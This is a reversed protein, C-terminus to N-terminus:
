KIRVRGTDVCLLFAAAKAAAAMADSESPTLFSIDRSRKRSAITFPDGMLRDVDDQFIDERRDGRSMVHYKAGPFEIRVKGPMCRCPFCFLLDVELLVPSVYPNVGIGVLLEVLTFGSRNNSHM